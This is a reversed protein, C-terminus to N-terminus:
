QPTSLAMGVRNHGFDYVSFFKGIFVDGLIWQYIILFM